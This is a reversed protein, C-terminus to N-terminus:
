QMLISIVLTNYVKSTDIQTKRDAFSLICYLARFDKQFFKQFLFQGHVKM